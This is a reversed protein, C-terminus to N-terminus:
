GDKPEAPLSSGPPSVPPLVPPGGGPSTGPAASTTVAVDDVFFSTTRLSPSTRADFFVMVTKGAYRSLLRTVNFSAHVWRAKANFNCALQLRGIVHGNSNVVTVTFKDVCTRTRHQTLGYWWYSLTITANGKPVKFSQAISDHCHSYGCLYASYNGTHPDTSDIEEYGGSSYEVWPATGNEFGGNQIM